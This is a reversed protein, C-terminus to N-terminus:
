CGEKSDMIMTSALEGCSSDDSELGEISSSSAFALKRSVWIGSMGQVQTSVGFMKVIYNAETFSGHQQEHPWAQAMLSGPCPLLHSQRTGPKGLMNQLENPLIYALNTWLSPKIMMSTSFHAFHVGSLRFTKPLLEPSCYVFAPTPHLMNQERETKVGRAEPVVGTDQFDNSLLTFLGCCLPKIGTPSSSM